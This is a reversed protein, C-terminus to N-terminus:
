LFNLISKYIVELTVSIIWLSVVIALNRGFSHENTDNYLGPVMFPLTCLLLNECFVLVFFLAKSLLNYKPYHHRSSQDSHIDQFLFTSSVCSIFILIPRNFRKWDIGDITRDTKKKSRTEVTVKIVLCLITHIGLFLGYKIWGSGDMLMLNWLSFLRAITQCLSSPLLVTLSKMKSGFKLGPKNLRLMSNGCSISWVAFFIKGCSIAMYGPKYRNFTIINAMGQLGKLGFDAWGLEPMCSFFPLLTWLMIVLQLTSEVSSEIFKTGRWINDSKFKGLKYEIPNKSLLYDYQNPLVIFIPWLLKSFIKMLMYFILQMKMYTVKKELDECRKKEDETIDSGIENKLWDKLRAYEQLNRNIIAVRVAIWTPTSLFCGIIYVFLNVLLICMFIQSAYEHKRNITEEKSLLCDFNITENENMLESVNFSRLSYM